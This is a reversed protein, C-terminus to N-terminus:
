RRSDMHDALAKIAADHAALTRQIGETSNTNLPADESAHDAFTRDVLEHATRKPARKATRKVTRKAM